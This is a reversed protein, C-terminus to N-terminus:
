GPEDAVPLTFSFTSGKGVQSEVWVRGGHAEVLGRTIYLGLGLGERQERAQRTRYYREFLRPLEEPAIGRGEDSVSTVVEGERAGLAVVVPTGPASYKLANGLLNTLIRELCDPDAWAPPLNAPADVRLREPETTAALRGVLDLAFQRVDVRTRSLKLQGSELRASDALDQVMASMRRASTLIAEASRREPGKLGAKELARLVLQAHGQVITLPARLDHCIAHVHEKAQISAAVLRGNVEQLQAVLEDRQEETRRRETVDRHVVLYGLFGGDARHVPAVSVDWHTGPRGGAVHPSAEVRYPEGSERVRRCVQEAEQAWGPFVEETTRGVLDELARSVQTALSENAARIALGDDVFAMADPSREFLASLLASQEEASLAGPRPPNAGESTDM